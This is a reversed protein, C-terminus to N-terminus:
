ISNPCHPNWQDLLGPLPQVEVGKSDQDDTWGKIWSHRAFQVKCQFAKLYYFSYIHWPFFCLSWWLPLPFFLTNPCSGKKGLGSILRLKCIHTYLYRNAAYMSWPTDLSHLKHSVLGFKTWWGYLRCTTLQTAHQLMSNVCQWFPVGHSHVNQLLGRKPSVFLLVLGSLFELGSSAPHSLGINQCSIQLKLIAQNYHINRKQLLLSWVWVKGMM